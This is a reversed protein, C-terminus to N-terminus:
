MAAQHGTPRRWLAYAMAATVALGAAAVLWVAQRPLQAQFLKNALIAGWVGAGLGMLAWALAALLTGATMVGRVRRVHRDLNSMAAGNMLESGGGARIARRHLEACVM